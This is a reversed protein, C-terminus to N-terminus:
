RRGSFALASVIDYEARRRWRSAMSGLTQRQYRWNGAQGPEMARRRSAAMVGLRKDGGRRRLAAQNSTSAMERGRWANEEEKVSQINAMTNENNSVSQWQYQQNCIIASQMENEKM